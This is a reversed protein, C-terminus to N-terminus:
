GFCIEFTTGENPKSKVSIDAEHLQIIQKSFSLGIGMGYEKTSYSPIFIKEITLEDIGIGNDTIQIITKGSTDRQAKILIIGQKQIAEVSNKVLNIFVQEILKEDAYIEINEPIDISFSINNKKFDEDFLLHLRKVLTLLQFYQFNPKPLETISRFREIFSILGKSREEIVEASKLTDLINEQELSNLDKIHNGESLSRKIATTLTTIPTISNMIEHRLIKILKRWSDLEQAELEFKINQFGLLRIKKEHIILDTSKVALHVDQGGIKLKLLAPHNKNKLNFVPEMVPFLAILKETNQLAKIGFLDKATNNILEIKGENSFAIIGTAVHEVVAKLYQHHQERALSAEQLKKNIISLNYILGKFNREIKQQSFALTSDNEQLFVLFNALDRNIQNLFYILSISQFILLLLIFLSTAPRQTQTYIWVLVFCTLTILIIRISIILTYRNM